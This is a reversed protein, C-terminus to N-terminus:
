RKRVVYTIANTKMLVAKQDRIIEFELPKVINQIVDWKKYVRDLKNSMAATSINLEVLADLKKNSKIEIEEIESNVILCNIGGRKTGEGMLQLVRDLTAESTLHELSSVSVILDYANKKIQYHGIDAQVTKIINEVGFDKRYKKLKEIASDLLDVCVIEGGHAKLEQAIPISNRGVGSGLDLVSLNEKEELLRLSKMVTEVPKYLWSGQEFLKYNEYCFDHYKKEENRVFQIRSM